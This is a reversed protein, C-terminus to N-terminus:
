RLQWDTSRPACRQVRGLLPEDSFKTSDNKAFSAFVSKCPMRTSDFSSNSCRMSCYVSRKFSSGSARSPFELIFWM